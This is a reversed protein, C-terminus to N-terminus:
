VEMILSTVYEVIDEKEFGEQMWDTTLIRIMDKLLKLNRINSLGEIRNIFENSLPTYLERVIEEKILQRLESKKM